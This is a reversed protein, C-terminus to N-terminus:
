PTKLRKSPGNADDTANLNLIPKGNSVQQPNNFFASKAKSKTYRELYIQENLSFLPYKKQEVLAKILVANSKLIKQNAYVYTDNQSNYHIQATPVWIGHQFDDDAKFLHSVDKDFEIGYFYTSFKQFQRTSNYNDYGKYHHLLSIKKPILSSQNEKEFVYYGCEQVCFGLDDLTRYTSKLALALDFSTEEKLERLLGYFTLETNEVIGGPALLNSDFTGSKKRGLFVHPQDNILCTIFAVVTEKKILSAPTGRKYTDWPTKEIATFPTSKIFHTLKMRQAWYIVDPTFSSTTISQSLHPLLEYIFIRLRIQYVIPLSSIAYMLIDYHTEILNVNKTLLDDNTLKFFLKEDNMCFLSFCIFTKFDKYSFCQLALNIHETILTPKNKLLSILNKTIIANSELKISTSLLYYSIKIDIFKPNEKALLIQLEPFEMLKNFFYLFEQHSNALYDSFFISLLIQKYVFPEYLINKFIIFQNAETDQSGRFSAVFYRQTNHFLSLLFCDNQITEYILQKKDELVWDEAYYDQILNELDHSNHCIDKLIKLAPDKLDTCGRNYIQSFLLQFLDAHKSILLCFLFTAATKGQDSRLTHISDDIITKILKPFDNAISFVLTEVLLKIPVKGFKLLLEIAPENRTCLAYELPAMKKTIGNTENPFPEVGRSLLVNMIKLLFDTNFEKLDHFKLLNLIHCLFDSLHIKNMNSIAIDLTKEDRLLTNFTAAKPQVPFARFFSLFQAGSGITWLKIITKEDNILEAAELPTFIHETKQLDIEVNDLLYAITDEKKELIAKTLLNGRVPTGHPLKLNISDNPNVGQALTKKLSQIDDNCVHSQNTFNLSKKYPIKRIYSDDLTVKLPHRVELIGPHMIKSYLETLLKISTANKLVFNHFDGGIHRIRQMFLLSLIHILRKGSYIGDEINITHTFINDQYHYENVQQWNHYFTLCKHGMYSQGNLIQDTKLASLHPTIYTNKFFHPDKKLLNDVDIEVGGSNKLFYPQPSKGPGLTLFVFAESHVNLPTNQNAIVERLFKRYAISRIEKEQLIKCLDSENKVFHTLKWKSNMLTKYVELEQETLVFANNKEPNSLKMETLLRTFNSQTLTKLNIPVESAPQLKPTSSNGRLFIKLDRNPKKILIRKRLLQRFSFAEEINLRSLFSFLKHYNPHFFVNLEINKLHVIFDDHSIIKIIFYKVFPDLCAPHSLSNYLINNRLSISSGQFFLKVLLPLLHYKQTDLISKYINLCLESPITKTHHQLFINFQEDNVDYALEILKFFSSVESSNFCSLLARVVSYKKLKLAALLNDFIVNKLCHAAIQKILGENDTRQSYFKLLSEYVWSDHDWLLQTCEFYPRIIDSVFEIIQLSELADINHFKSLRIFTDEFLLYNNKQISFGLGYPLLFEHCFSEDSELNERLPNSKDLYYFAAVRHLLVKTIHTDTLASLYVGLETKLYNIAANLRESFSSIRHETQQTPNLFNIIAQNLISNMQKAQQLANIDVPVFNNKSSSLGKLEGNKNLFLSFYHDYNEILAYFILSWQNPDNRSFLDNTLLNFLFPIHDISTPTINKHLVIEMAVAYDHSQIAYAFIDKLSEYHRASNNQYLTDRTLLFLKKVSEYYLLPNEASGLYELREELCSDAYKTINNNLLTLLIRDDDVFGCYLLDLSSLQDNKKIHNFIITFCDYSINSCERFIWAYVDMNDMTILVTQDLPNAGYELLKELIIKSQTDHDSFTEIAVVLPNLDEEGDLVFNPNVGQSLLEIVTDPDKKKIAKILHKQQDIIDSTKIEYQNSQM